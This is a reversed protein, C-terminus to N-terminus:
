KLPPFDNDDFICNNIKKQKININTNEVLHIKFLLERNTNTTFELIQYDDYIRELFGLVLAQKGFERIPRENIFEIDIYETQLNFLKILKNKILFWTDAINADLSKEQNNYYATIKM